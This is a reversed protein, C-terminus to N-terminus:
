CVRDLHVPASTGKCGGFDILYVTRPETRGICTNGPKLDRHIFGQLHLYELGLVVQHSARVTTSLTFRRRPRKGRLSDLNAGLIQMVIFPCGNEAKGSAMLNPIHRQM